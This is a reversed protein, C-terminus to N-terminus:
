AESEKILYIKRYLKGKQSPDLPTDYRQNLHGLAHKSPLTPARDLLGQSEESGSTALFFM